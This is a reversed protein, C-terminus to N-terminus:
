RPSAPAPPMSKRQLEAPARQSDLPQIQFTWKLPVTQPIYCQTDDCAQYVFSGEVTLERQAGPQGMVLDRTIRVHDQYVPVTEHIVPMDLMQWVPYTVPLAVWNKSEPMKWNIPIYGDKVGPAYVHMGPKMELDLLLTIRNGSAVATDSASTILKLHRTQIETKKAGDAGFQHILISGASYRDVHDDEFYKARVIGRADLIFMGPFPVGYPLQGPKFNTNLIGFARIVKSDPDSLLPYTINKRAAFDKLLAASDYSLAAM